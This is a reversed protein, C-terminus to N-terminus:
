MEEAVKVRIQESGSRDNCEFIDPVDVEGPSEDALIPSVQAHAQHQRNRTRECMRESYGITICEVNMSNAVKRNLFKIRKQLLCTM